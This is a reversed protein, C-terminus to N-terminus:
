QRNDGGTTPGLGSRNPESGIGQKYIYDVKDLDDQTPPTTVRAAPDSSWSTCATGNQPELDKFTYRRFWYAAPCQPSNVCSTCGQGLPRKIKGITPYPFSLAM